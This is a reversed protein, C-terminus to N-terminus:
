ELLRVSGDEDIMILNTRELWDLARRARSRTKEGSEELLYDVLEQETAGGHILVMGKVREHLASNVLTQKLASYDEDGHRDSYFRVVAEAPLYTGKDVKRLFGLGLFFSNVGSIQSRALRTATMVRKYHVPEVGMKTLVVYARLILVQKEFNMSSTPVLTAKEEDSM